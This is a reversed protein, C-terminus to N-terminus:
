FTAPFNPYHEIARDIRDLMDSITKYGTPNIEMLDSSYRRSGPPDPFEPMTMVQAMLIERLSGLSFNFFETIETTFNLFDFPSENRTFGWEEICWSTTGFNRRSKICSKMALLVIKIFEFNLSIKAVRYQSKLIIWLKANTIQEMPTDIWQIHIWFLSHWFQM